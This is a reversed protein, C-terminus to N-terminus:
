LEERIERALIELIARKESNFANELFKPTRGGEHELRQDEHQKVAYPSHYSVAVTNGSQSVRGSELLDRDELPVHKNSEALVHEAAKRAGRVTGKALLVAVNPSTVRKSRAVFM